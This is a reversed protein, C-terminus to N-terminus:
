IRKVGKFSGRLFLQNLEDAALGIVEIARIQGLSLGARRLVLKEDPLLTKMQLGAAPSRSPRAPRVQALRANDM